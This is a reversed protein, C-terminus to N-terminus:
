GARRRPQLRCRPPRCLRSHAAAAPHSAPCSGAPWGWNVFAVPIRCRRGPRGFPARLLPCDRLADRRVQGRSLYDAVIQDLQEGCCSVEAM